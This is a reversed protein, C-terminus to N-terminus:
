FESVLYGTPRIVQVLPKEEPNLEDITTRFKEGPKLNPMIIEKKKGSATKWVLKYNRLIYAPLSNKVYVVVEAETGKASQQVSEFYVPSALSKYASYSPKKDFWQDTLGHIRQQYRGKGSEGFHTRYDNLCFYICGLIFDNKAWLNYHYAMDVIRRADGGVNAPECLGNETVWLPRGKLANENISQLIGPADENHKTHWTGVYDNWTPIDALLSEDVQGRLHRL